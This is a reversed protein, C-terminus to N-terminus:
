LDSLGIYRIHGETKLKSLAEWFAKRRRPGGELGDIMFLDIYGIDLEALLMRIDREPHRSGAPRSVSIWIDQRTITPNNGCYTNVAAAAQYEGQFYGHSTNIHRIGLEL